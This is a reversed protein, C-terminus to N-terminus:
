ARGLMLALLAMRVPIGYGAQRFYAAQPLSDVDTAIEDIRPLPDLIALPKDAVMDRTLIYKRRYREFLARDPLREEQLRNMYLVDANLADHLDSVESCVAGRQQLESLLSSSLRLEGPSVFTFRNGPFASLVKALSHISRSGLPDFGFTVRLNDLRGTEKRITYLDILAQTPHENSGDGANIFPVTSVVEARAAGGSEGHRMIILDVYTSVVRITDEISEGKHVSTTNAGQAFVVGAKLRQVASQFSLMTRSSPEFFLLAIMKDGLLDTRGAHASVSAMLDTVRFIEHLVSPELQDASILSRFPLM